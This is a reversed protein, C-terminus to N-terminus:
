VSTGSPQYDPIRGTSAKMQRLALLVARPLITATPVIVSQVGTAEQELQLQSTPTFRDHFALVNRQLAFAGPLKEIEEIAREFLGSCQDILM